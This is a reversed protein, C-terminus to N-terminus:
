KGMTSNAQWEKAQERVEALVSETLAAKCSKALIRVRLKRSWKECGSDTEQPRTPNKQLAYISHLSENRASNFLAAYRIVIDRVPIILYLITRLSTSVDDDENVVV